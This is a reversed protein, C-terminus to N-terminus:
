KRDERIDVSAARLVTLYNECRSANM